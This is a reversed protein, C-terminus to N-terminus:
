AFLRPVVEGAPGRLAVHALRDAETSETNVILVAAGAARAVGILAAAPYVTASTGIVVLVDCSACAEGARTWAGSPLSEGFWVVAPRMPAAHCAPCERLPQPEVLDIPEEHGCAAHCRDATITGHLHLVNAPDAGARELLDDVNQTVHIIGRRAALAIHAANPQITALRRRRWAYWEM